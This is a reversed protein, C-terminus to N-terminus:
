EYLARFGPELKGFEEAAQEAPFAAVSGDSRQVVCGSSTLLRHNERTEEANGWCIVQCTGCTLYIKKEPIAPNYYGAGDTREPWKLYNTYARFFENYIESKEEPIHYRGPSWTSWKGSKSLGTFGGCVFDCIVLANREAFTYTKGGLSVSTEEKKSFMGGACSAACLKCRTCFSEEEPIPTGPELEADTVITGLIVATGYDAIGVNGSWGFSGLGSAVAVYRHSLDPHLKMRWDPEEQRYVLNAHIRRAAFGESELLGVAEKGIQSIRLNTQINDAEHEAQNVKSLFARIKDRDLPLAFSIASRAEPLIYSLDASPPGGELSALSAFGVKVAGRECLFEEIRAELSM